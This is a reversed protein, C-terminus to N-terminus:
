ARRVGRVPPHPLAFGQNFACRTVLAFKFWQGGAFALLGAAAPLAWALLPAPPTLLAVVALGLALWSCGKFVHGARDAEALAKPVSAVRKRWAPWAVLRALLLAALVVWPAARSATSPTVALLLGLGEALGSAALLPVIQPPRWAPIGRAAQVIRAQCYLFALAAVAAVPAALPVGLLAAAVAAFLVVAVLSERSMWSRRPHRMVNMARWPRGIEFWVATLGVGVLAAGIVMPSVPAGFVVTAAILGSGAGGAMFNTAARADWHQQLWPNPGFAANM